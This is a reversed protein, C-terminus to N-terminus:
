RRICWGVGGGGGAGGGGVLLAVLVLMENRRLNIYRLIHFNMSTVRLLLPEPHLPVGATAGLAISASVLHCHNIGKTNWSEDACVRSITQVPSVNSILLSICM